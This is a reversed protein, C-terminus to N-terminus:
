NLVYLLCVRGPSVRHLRATGPSYSPPRVGNLFADRIAESTRSCVDRSSKWVPPEWGRSVFLDEILKKDMAPQNRFELTRLQPVLGDNALANIFATDSGHPVHVLTLHTLSPASHCLATILNDSTLDKARSIELHAINPSRLQFARFQTESWIYKTQYTDLTLILKELVPTSIGELFPMFHPATGRFTLTLARLQAHFPIDTNPQPPAMWGNTQVSARVLLPCRALTALADSSNDEESAPPTLTLDTLQAWPLDSPTNSPVRLKQLRPASFFAITSNVKMDGLDMEELNDFSSGGLFRSLFSAPSTGCKLFRWRPSVKLVENVIRPNIHALDKPDPPGGLHISLCLPASRELWTKLGDAYADPAKHSYLKVRLPMVWLRFANKVHSVLTSDVMTLLFIKALVEPSLMRVPAALSRVAAVTARVATIQSELSALESESQELIAKTQMRSLGSTRAEVVAALEANM